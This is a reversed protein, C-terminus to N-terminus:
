QCDQMIHFTQRTNDIMWVGSSKSVLLSHAMDTSIIKFKLSVEDFNLEKYFVGVFPLIADLFYHVSASIPHERSFTVRFYFYIM